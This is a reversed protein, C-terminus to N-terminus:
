LAKDKTVTSFLGSDPQQEILNNYSSLSPGFVPQM